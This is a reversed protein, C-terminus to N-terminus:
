IHILSLIVVPNSHGLNCVSVGAIFDLYKKNDSDVIHSGFANKIEISLPHPTTKAQYKLFDKILKM